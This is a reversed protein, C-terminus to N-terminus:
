CYLKVLLVYNILQLKIKKQPSPPTTFIYNLYLVFLKTQMSNSDILLVQHTIDTGATNSQMCTQKKM